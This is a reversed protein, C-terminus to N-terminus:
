SGPRPASLEPPACPPILDALEAKPDTEKLVERLDLDRTLMVYDQTESTKLYSTMPIPKAGLESTRCVKHVKISLTGPNHKGDPMLIREQRFASLLAADAPKLRYVAFRRGPTAVVPLTALEAPDRVEQLTASREHRGGDRANVTITMVVGDPLPRIEAPLSVGSRLDALDTTKFDIRSLKPLSTLPVHGCGAASAAILLVCSRKWFFAIPPM